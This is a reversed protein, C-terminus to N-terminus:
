MKGNIDVRTKCLKAVTAVQRVFQLKHFGKTKRLRVTSKPLKVTILDLRMM